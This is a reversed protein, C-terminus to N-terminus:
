ELIEVTATVVRTKIPTETHLNKMNFQASYSDRVIEVSYMIMTCLNIEAVDREEVISVNPDWQEDHGEYSDMSDNADEISM